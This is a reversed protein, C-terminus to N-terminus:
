SLRRQLDALYQQLHKRPITDLTPELAKGSVFDDIADMAKSGFKNLQIVHNTARDTQGAAMDMCYNVVFHHLDESGLDEKHELPVPTEEGATARLDREKAMLERVLNAQQKEDDEDIPAMPILDDESEAAPIFNSKKCFPCTGKRGGAEDPAQVEKGCHECEFTITM